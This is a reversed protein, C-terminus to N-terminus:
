LMLNDLRLPHGWQKHRGNTVRESSTPTEGGEGDFMLAVQKVFEAQGMSDPKIEDGEVDKWLWRLPFLHSGNNQQVCLSGSVLAVQSFTLVYDRAMHNVGRKM